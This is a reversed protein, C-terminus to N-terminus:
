MLERSSCRCDCDIEQSAGFEICIAIQILCRESIRDCRLSPISKMPLVPLLLDYYMSDLFLACSVVLVFIVNNLSGFSLKSKTKSSIPDVHCSNTENICVSAPTQDYKYKPSCKKKNKNYKQYKKYIVYM